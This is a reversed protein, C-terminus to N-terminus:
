RPPCLVDGIHTLGVNFTEVAETPDAIGDKLILDVFASNLSPALFGILRSLWPATYRIQPMAGGNVIRIVDDLLLIDPGALEFTGDPGDLARLLAAAVDGRYIVALRQRGNGFVNVPKGGVSRLATELDGPADPPGIIPTLRFITAPCGAGNIIAEAEGQSRLFANRSAPDAGIGSTFLIRKALGAGHAVGQAVRRATDVQASTYSNGGVPNVSGCLHIIVDAQALAELAAPARTWDEITPIDLDPAPKRVLGTVAHGAEVLRPATMRGLLGNAGTMAIKKM